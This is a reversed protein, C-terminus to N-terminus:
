KERRKEKRLMVCFLIYALSGVFLIIAIEMLFFETNLEYFYFIGGYKEIFRVELLLIEETTFIKKGKQAENIEKETRKRWKTYNGHKVVSIILFPVLKIENSVFRKAIGSRPTLNSMSIENFEYPWKVTEETELNYYEPIVYSNYVCPIFVVALILLYGFILFISRKCKNM